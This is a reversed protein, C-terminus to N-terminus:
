MVVPRGRYMLPTPSKQAPKTDTSEPPIPMPPATEEPKPLWNLAQLSDMLKPQDLPEAWGIARYISLLCDGVGMPDKPTTLLEAAGQYTAWRREAEPVERQPPHTLIVRSEPCRKQCERCLAYPNFNGISMDVLVLDPRHQEILLMLDEQPAEVRVRHGQSSLIQRWFRAYKDRQQIVLITRTMPYSPVSLYNQQLRDPSTQIQPDGWRDWDLKSPDSSKKPELSSVDGNSKLTFQPHTLAQASARRPQIPRIRPSPPIAENANM